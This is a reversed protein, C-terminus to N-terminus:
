NKNYCHTPLIAQCPSIMKALRALEVRVSHGIRKAIKKQLNEELEELIGIDIKWHLSFHWYNWKMPTHKVLCTAIFPDNNRTYEFNKNHLEQIPISCYSKIANNTFETEFIPIDVVTDPACYYNFKAKGAETLALRVHKDNYIGFLSFSMDKIREPPSCIFSVRIEGTETDVIEEINESNILRVLFYSSLNCDIFKYQPNPLIEVPYEM